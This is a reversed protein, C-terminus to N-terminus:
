SSRVLEKVSGNALPLSVTFASGKNPESEVTIAGGHLETLMKAIYLGMGTGQPTGAGRDRAGQQFIHTVLEAKMGKGNDSIRALARGNDRSLEAVVETGPPNHKIANDLLTAFIEEFMQPDGPVSQTLLQVEMRLKVDRETAAPELVILIHEILRALNVPAVRLSTEDLGMRILRLREAHRKMQTAAEGIAARSIQWRQPDTPLEEGLVSLHGQISTVYNDLAHDARSMLQLLLRADSPSDDSAVRAARRRVLLWGLLGGALIAAILIGGLLGADLYIVPLTM